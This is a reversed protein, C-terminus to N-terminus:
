EGEGSYDAPDAINETDSANDMYEPSFRETTANTIVDTIIGAAGDAPVGVGQVDMYLNFGDVCTDHIDRRLNNKYRKEDEWYQGPDNNVREIMNSNMARNAENGPAARSVLDYLNSGASYLAYGAFFVGAAGWGTPTTTAAYYLLSSAAGATAERYFAGDPDIYKIPNNNGYAYLNVGGAFGAPDRQLFRGTNADYHRRAMFYLGNGDDVVGNAGVYTFPNYINGSRNTIQGFTDYAYANIVAGNADTLALTSNIQNYHYYYVNQGQVMAILKAGAYIYTATIAGTSDTEFLLRGQKDHHYNRTVGGTVKKVRRGFANYYFTSTVGNRTISTLRNEADYSATQPKQGTVKTLNGDADHTYTDGGRAIIQDAINNTTDIALPALPGEVPLSRTESTINGTANRIFSMSALTTLGKAHVIKQVNNLKDYSYDTTVGNARTEKLLNGAPDYHFSIAHTIGSVTWTVSNIRRRNNYTYNVTIGSPYTTTKTLGKDYAQSITKGDPYAITVPRNAKDYTFSTTGAGNNMSTLNGAADYSFQASPNGTSYAKGTKRDYDDYTMSTSQQRGNTVTRLRKAGDWSYTMMHSYPDFITSLLGDQNYYFQFKGGRANTVAKIDWSPHYEFTTTGKQPNTLQSMRNMSDPVMSYANGGSDTMRSIGGTTNRTIASIGGQANTIKSLRLNKDWTATTTNNNGDTKSLPSLGDYTFKQTSSDAFTIQTLRNNADFAYSTKNGAPDTQAILQLGNADYEYTTKDGVQDTKEIVNGFADYRYQVSNGLPNVASILQGQANYSFNFSTPATAPKTFKILNRNADREFTSTVGIGNTISTVDEHSDYTFSTVHNMPSTLKTVRGKNNYERLYAGSGTNSSALLGNEFTSSTTDGSPNSTTTTQGESNNTYTSTLGRSDKVEVGNEGETFSTIAGTPNTISSISKRWAGEVSYSFTTTRDLFRISTMYGINDYTYYLINDIRDKTQILNGSADYTYTATDGDPFTITTCHKNADYAFNTFRGAADTVRSITGNANYSVTIANGAPDSISALLWKKPELPSLNYRYSLRSNLPRYIWYYGAGDYHWTLTDFIGTPHTPTVVGTGAVSNMYTGSFLWRDGDSQLLRPETPIGSLADAAVFSEFNFTWGRGFMGSATSDSNYTRRIKVAPGLGKYSFDTDEVM